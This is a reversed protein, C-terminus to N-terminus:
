GCQEINEQPRVWEVTKGFLPIGVYGRVKLTGDNELSITGNFDRGDGPNYIKGANWTNDNVRRFGNLITLGCLPRDRLAIDPNNLDRKPHGSASRLKKLWYIRGCLLGNCDEIWVAVKRKNSEVWPGRIDDSIIIEPASVVPSALVFTLLLSALSRTLSRFVVRESVANQTLAAHARSEM